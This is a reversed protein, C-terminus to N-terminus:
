GNKSNLYQAARFGLVIAEMWRAVHLNEICHLILVSMNQESVKMERDFKTWLKSLKALRREIM